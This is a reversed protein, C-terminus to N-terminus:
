SEAPAFFVLIELDEAITVFKHAAGAPVYVLSGQRVARVSGEVEIEARGRLVYYVEDERHPSQPDQAGAALRYLGVSLDPVRLFELYAKKSDAAQTLIENLEFAEM